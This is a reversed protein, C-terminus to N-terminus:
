RHRLRYLALLPKELARKFRFLFTRKDRIPKVLICYMGQCRGALVDTFIQDGLMVTNKGTTGMALMARRIYRGGPKGSKAHAYYGLSRNFLEVRPADNNSVFSCRIGAKELKKLWARLRPTPEPSEYPELTNDIDCVFGRIGRESLRNIDISYIDDLYEDPLFLSPM